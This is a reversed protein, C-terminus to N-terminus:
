LLLVSLLLALLKNTKMHKDEKYHKNDINIAKSFFQKVIEPPFHPRNKKGAKRNEAKPSLGETGAEGHCISLGWLQPSLRVTGSLQPQSFVPM